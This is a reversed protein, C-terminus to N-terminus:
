VLTWVAQWWDPDSGDNQVIGDKFLKNLWGKIRHTKGLFGWQLEVETIERVKDVIEVGTLGLPNETLVRIILDGIDLFSGIAPTIKADVSFEFEVFPEEVSSADFLGWDFTTGTNEATITAPNFVWRKHTSVTIESIYLNFLSSDNTDNLKVFVTVYEQTAGAYNISGASLTTEQVGGGTPLGISGLSGLAGLPKNPNLTAPLWRAYEQRDYKGDWVELTGGGNVVEATVKVTAGTIESLKFSKYFWDNQSNSAGTSHMRVRPPEVAFLGSPLLFTEQRNRQERYQWSSERELIIADVAVNISGTNDNFTNINLAFARDESDVQAFNPPTGTSPHRYIIDYRKVDRTTRLFCGYFFGGPNVSGNIFGIMYRTGPQMIVPPSFTFTIDTFTPSSTISAQTITNSTGVINFGGGSDQSQPFTAIRCSTTMSTSTNTMPITVSKVYTQVTVPPLEQYKQQIEGGAMQVLSTTSSDFIAKFQWPSAGRPVLVSDIIFTADVM